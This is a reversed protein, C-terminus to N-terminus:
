ELTFLMQEAQQAQVKCELGKFYEHDTNKYRSYVANPDIITLSKKEEESLTNHFEELYPLLFEKVLTTSVGIRISGAELNMLDTFKNEARHIYEMAQKYNM